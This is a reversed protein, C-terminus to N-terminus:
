ENVYDAFVAYFTINGTIAPIDAATPYLTGPATNGTYESTTWGMFKDAGDCPLNAPDITPAKTPKSNYNVDEETESGDVKWKVKYTNIQWQATFTVNEAPMTYSNGPQYTNTGDSWGTFTYGTRTPEDSCIDFSSNYTYTGGACSTTGNNGKYTVTYNIASYQAYLTVTTSENVWKASADTYGAVNAILKGDKDIVKTGNTASTYYGVLEYGTAPDCAIFSPLAQGYTAVVIFGSGSGHNETNANISINTQKATWKAVLTVTESPTYPSNVKTEDDYWGDFNYGKRIPTPLDIADTVGEKKYNDGDEEWGDPKSDFSGGNLDLTVTAETTCVKEISCSSIGVQNSSSSFTIKVANTGAPLSNSSITFNTSTIGTSTYSIGGDTSYHLTITQAKTTWQECVWTVSSLTSEDTMVLSVENGKTVPQNTITGTQKSASKFTVTADGYEVVHQAYSTSWGTFDIATFDYTVNCDDGAGGSSAADYYIKISSTSTCRFATSTKLTVSAANINSITTTGGSSSVSGSTSTWTGYYDSSSGSTVIIKTIENEGSVSFTISGNVAINVRNSSYTCSTGTWSVAGASGNSVNSNSITTSADQSSGNYSIYSTGLMSGVGLTFLVTLVMALRKPM